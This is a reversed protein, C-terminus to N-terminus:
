CIIVTPNSILLIKWVKMGNGNAAGLKTEDQYCGCIIIFFSANGFIHHNQLWSKRLGIALM